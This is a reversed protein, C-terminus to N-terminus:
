RAEELRRSSKRMSLSVDIIQRVPVRAYPDAIRAVLTQVAQRILIPINLNVSTLGGAVVECLPSDNFSAVAIDDPIKVGMQQAASVVGLAMFDDLVVIAEPRTPKRFITRAIESAAQMGFEAHYIEDALGYPRLAKQYGAIRDDGVTLGPRGGLFAISRFGQELLHTTLIFAADVNDNDVSLVNDSHLPNGILVFPFRDRQLLEIRPDSSESEVLILGDVRRSRLLEDYIHVHTDGDTAVDVCLHFDSGNLEAVLGSILQTFFPDDVVGGQPRKLVLGILGAKQSRLARARSDARYNNEVMVREVRERINDEVRSDGALVRSVTAQSVQALRAVERQTMRM